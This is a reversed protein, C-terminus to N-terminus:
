AYKSFISILKESEKEWTLASNAFNINKKWKKMLEQNGLVENVKKAINKPEHDPIFDGINYEEVIKKVETLPSVLVPIESHIYDFLKNPLSYRYNINTDKDLSLGLDANATYELLKSYELKPIFIIKDKLDFKKALQHLHDIVDGNGIILLVAATIYQMSEVMEEAGREVNIGSGQLVLIFKDVPLGLESRSPKNRVIPKNSINRVVAPRVGYEKEYLQAISDSVTIVEDLKPFIAKEITKWIRQVRKRNVLEPVETFYEHSDYVIPIGKIKHILFNPLLTDLDNAVVLNTKHFLLYLFLRLNFTAYFLPGKDFILKMRHTKYPRDDIAASKKMRRGILLVDFGLENLILSTRHVRQDTSLDSIVSVVVKTKM